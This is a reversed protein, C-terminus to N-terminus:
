NSSAEEVADIDWDPMDEEIDTDEAADHVRDLLEDAVYEEVYDRWNEDRTLEYAEKVDRALVNVEVSAAQQVVRSVEVIFKM